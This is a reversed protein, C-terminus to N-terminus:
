EVIAGAEGFYKQVSCLPLVMGDGANLVLLVESDNCTSLPLGVIAM